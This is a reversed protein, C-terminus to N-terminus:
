GRNKTLANMEANNVKVKGEKKLRGDLNDFFLGLVQQQKQQLLQDSIQDRQSAFAPDNASPEQRDTVQLVVGKTGANLPGSIEGPKMKFAISAPGAMSGIDPVQASSGVLDSTKVTAGQEKAAKALDHLVHARDALEKTKKQLLDNVRENTFDAAVKNKIQDLTPTQPPIVKTVQFMVYAQPSRALQPPQNEGTAFILGMVEPSPGVGPLSDDHSVPNSEIV